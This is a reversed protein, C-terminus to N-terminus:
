KAIVIKFTEVYAGTTFRALYIGRELDSVDFSSSYSGATQQKNNLLIKMMQGNLNCIVLNVSENELLNYEFNMSNSIPNPYYNFSCNGKNPLFGTAYTSAPKVSSFASNGGANQVCVRYYYNTTPDAWPIVYSLTNSSIYSLSLVGNVFTNDMSVELTYTYEANGQAPPAIWNATFGTSNTNSVTAIAPPLSLTTFTGDPSYGTGIGYNAFARFYYVTNPVFGTRAHSFGGIGTGGELLINGTPNPTTGWVTGRGSPVADANTLVTGGLTAGTTTILTATPLSAYSLTTFSSIGSYDSNGGANVIM